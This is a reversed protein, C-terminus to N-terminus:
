LKTFATTARLNDVATMFDLSATMTAKFKLWKDDPVETAIVTQDYDTPWNAMEGWQWIFHKASKKRPGVPVPIAMKAPKPVPTHAKQAALVKHLAARAARETEQESLDHDAVLSALLAMGDRATKRVLGPQTDDAAILALEETQARGRLQTFWPDVPEGAAIREGAQVALQRLQDSYRTDAAIQNVVLAKELTKYSAQNGLMRAAQERTDSKPEDLPAPFNGAGDGESGGFRTAQQRRAGDAAIETQLEEYLQALEMTTYTKHSLNDDREAILGSLRESLGTRMWVNITRWGLLKIAALRRAGCVLVGEPTITVLQLLGLTEISAALAEIDGLDKRHRAGVMIADVAWDVRIQNADIM